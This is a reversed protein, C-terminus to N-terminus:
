KANVARVALGMGVRDKPFLRDLKSLMYLPYFTLATMVKSGFFFRNLRWSVDGFSKMYYDWEETKFGSKELKKKMGSFDYGPRVHGFMEHFQLGLKGTPVTIVLRGSKRLVRSFESLAKEDDRIHELVDSCMLVDFADDTFPLRTADAVFSVPGSEHLKTVIDVSSKIKERDVDVGVVAGAKKESLLLMHLGPGCGVDLIKKGKVDGLLSSIRSIRVRMGMHPIGFVKLAIREVLNNKVRVEVNDATKLVTKGARSLKSGFPRAMLM